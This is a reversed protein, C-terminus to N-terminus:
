QDNEWEVLHCGHERTCPVTSWRCHSWQWAEPMWWAYRDGGAECGAPRPRPLSAGRHCDPHPQHPSRPTQTHQELRPRPTGTPSQGRSGAGATERPIDGGFRSVVDDIHTCAHTSPPKWLAADRCRVALARKLGLCVRAGGGGGGAWRVGHRWVWRSNADSTTPQSYRGFCMDQENM